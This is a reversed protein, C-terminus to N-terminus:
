VAREIVERVGWRKERSLPRCEEIVVKDGVKCTNGEDHAKYRARRRVYKKYVPHKVLREVQVVITKDMKDSVVIGIQTKRHGTARM